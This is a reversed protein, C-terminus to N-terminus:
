SSLLRNIIEMVRKRGSRVDHSLMVRQMEQRRRFDGCLEAFIGAIEDRTVDKGLGLNVFGREPHAFYHTLERQNQALVVTPVGCCAAEFVTRGASTFMLDAATMYDSMRSTSKVLRIRKFRGLARFHTYGPGTIVTVEMGAANKGIAELVRCTLNNEDTGGFTVLVRRVRRAVPRPVASQFEDRADFYKHGSYIHETFHGEPYLANIVADAHKTGGGLDEFNVVRCLLGKLARVYREDTDLIDNIVLDPKMAAADQELRPHRQIEARHHLERLRRLALGSKKTALFLIDHGTLENAITLARYVHGLGIQNYGAVVFLIRRRKLLQECVLWDTEDDIDVAQDRPVLFLEANRGIRGQPVVCRARTVLFSGTERYVPPLQQRNVRKEYAPVFRGGERRWTLHTDDIGAILTDLEPEALMRDLAADLTATKLLPATPQVTAVISYSKGTKSSIRGLAHHVVPDLTVADGSLRKPRRCVGAGARKSILAIEEDETSVWVDPKHKSGLACSIAYQILPKGGLSRVNKRPIGKSGGRAPIVILINSRLKVCFYFQKIM